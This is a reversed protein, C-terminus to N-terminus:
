VQGFPVSCESLGQGASTPNIRIQFRQLELVAPQRSNGSAFKGTRNCIYPHFIELNNRFEPNQPMASKGNFSQRLISM